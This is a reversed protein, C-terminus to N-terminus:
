RWIVGEHLDAFNALNFTFVNFMGCGIEWVLFGGGFRLYSSILSTLFVHGTEASLTGEAQSLFCHIDFKLEGTGAVIWPSRSHKITGNIKEWELLVFFALCHLHNIREVVIFLLCRLFLCITSANRLDM